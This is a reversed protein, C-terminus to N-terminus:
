SPFVSYSFLPLTPGPDSNVIETLGLSPQHESSYLLPTIVWVWDPKYKFVSMFPHYFARYEVEFVPFTTQLQAWPPRMKSKTRRVM